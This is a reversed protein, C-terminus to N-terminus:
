HELCTVPTTPKETFTSGYQGSAYKEMSYNYLIILVEMTCILNYQPSMELNNESQKTGTDRSYSPAMCIM